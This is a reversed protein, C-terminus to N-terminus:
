ATLEGSAACMDKIMRIAARSLPKFIALPILEIGNQDIVALEDPKAGAASRIASAPL